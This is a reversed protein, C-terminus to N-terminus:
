NCRLLNLIFKYLNLNNNRNNEDNNDLLKEEVEKIILQRSVRRLMRKCDHDLLISEDYSQQYM